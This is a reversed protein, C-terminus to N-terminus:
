QAPSAAAGSALVKSEAVYRRYDFFESELQFNYRRLLALRGGGRLHFRRPLWVGESNRLLEFRFNTGPELRFLFWGFSVTELVNAEIRAVRCEAPDVWMRGRLNKLMKGGRSKPRFEPRPTADLIVTRVGSITEEGAFRWRYGEVMEELMERREQLDRREKELRKEKEPLTEKRRKELERELKEQERRELEPSLPKGDKEILRSYPRGHFYDIEWTRSEAEKIDGSRDFQRRVTRQKFTYDRTADVIREDKAAVCRVLEQSDFSGAALMQPALALILVTGLNVHAM